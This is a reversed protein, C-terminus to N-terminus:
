HDIRCKIGQQETIKLQMNKGWCGPEGSQKKKVHTKYTWMGTRYAAAINTQRFYLGEGESGDKFGVLWLEFKEGVGLREKGVCASQELWIQKDGKVSERTAWHKFCRGAIRSVQTQDRPWSSEKSFSFAVWELITAQLIGHISSGPPSCDM